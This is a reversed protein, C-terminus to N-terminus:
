TRSRAPRRAPSRTSTRLVYEYGSSDTDIFSYSCGTSSETGSVALINEDYGSDYWSVTSTSDTASGANGDSVTHTVLETFNDFSTTTADSVTITGTVNDSNSDSAIGAM